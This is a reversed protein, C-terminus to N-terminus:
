LAQYKNFYSVEPLANKHISGSRGGVSVETDKTSEGNLLERQTRAEVPTQRYILSSIPQEVRSRPAVPRESANLKIRPHTESPELSSEPTHTKQICLTYNIHPSEKKLYEHHWKVTQAEQVANHCQDRSTQGITSSSHSQKQFAVFISGSQRYGTKRGLNVNSIAFSPAMRLRSSKGSSRSSATSEDEWNCSTRYIGFGFEPDYETSAESITSPFIYEITSIDLEDLPSPFDTHQVCIDALEMRRIVSRNRIGARVELLGSGIVKRLSREPLKQVWRASKRPCPSRSYCTRRESWSKSVLSPNHRPDHPNFIPYHIGEQCTPLASPPGLLSLLFRDPAAVLSQCPLVVM